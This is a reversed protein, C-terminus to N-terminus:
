KKATTFSSVHDKALENGALDRVAFGGTDGAGEITLQYTTNGALKQATTGYPDITLVTRGSSDTKNTMTVPISTPKKGPKVLTITKGNLTSPAMKESFTITINTTTSVGILNSPNVSVVTPATTDVHNVTITVTATDSDATGDNAKYTFSDSSSFGSSPTYTFSGDPNLSLQGNAPDSVKVATLTDGDSDSDNSLVGPAPVNLAQNADTTYSDAAAVPAANARTVTHPEAASTSGNFNADGTYTATLTKDGITTSTLACQGAAVTDTCSDAGDSVTVDGTPTGAGPSDATVNYSVTYSQGVVSPDPVDSTITTTTSAPPPPGVVGGQACQGAPVEVAYLAYDNADKTWLVSKGTDKFTTNDCEPDYARGGGLYAVLQMNSGDKGASYIQSDSNGLYLTSDDAIAIGTTLFGLRTGNSFAGTSFSGLVTGDTKFHYVTTAVDTSYWLTDDAADYALGATQGWQFIELPIDFAKTATGTGAQKNLSVKYIKEPGDSQSTGIWLQNHKADWSLAAIGLVDPDMGLIDYSGLNAGTAPDVRSITHNYICSTLLEKGDFALGESVVRSGCQPPPDVNLTRVIDGTAAQSPKATVFLVLMGLVLSAAAAMVWAVVTTTSAKKVLM